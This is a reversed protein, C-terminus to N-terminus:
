TRHSPFADRVIAANTAVEPAGTPRIEASALRAYVVRALYTGACFGLAAGAWELPATPSLGAVAPLVILLVAVLAAGIVRVGSRARSSLFGLPVLLAALWLASVWAAVRHEVTFYPMLFSWGLAVTLPLAYSQTVGGINVDVRLARREAVARVRVTDPPLGESHRLVGRVALGPPVLRADAARDRARFVLADREQYFALAEWRSNTIRLIPARRRFGPGSVVEIDARARGDVLIPWPTGDPEQLEGEHEVRRGNVVTSLLRGPFIEPNTLRPEIQAYYLRPQISPLLGIATGGLVAGVALAVGIALRDAVPRTSFLWLTTTAALLAGLAGGTTNTLVDSLTPDRGTVVLAQWSEVFLSVLLATATSRRWSFGRMRLGMGLPIFLIVNLTVDVGGGAGCM